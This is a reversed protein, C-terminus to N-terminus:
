NSGDRDVISRVKHEFRFLPGKSKNEPDIIDLLPFMCQNIAEELNYAQRKFRSTVFIGGLGQAKKFCSPMDRVYLSIHPGSNAIIKGSADIELKTHDVARQETAHCFSLTQFPSGVIKIECANTQPLSPADFVYRYFRCIDTLDTNQSVYFTLDPILIPLSKLGPQCGRPDEANSDVLLRFHSGWPDTVLLEDERESWTFASTKLLTSHASILKNRVSELDEVSEEKRPDIAFGLTEFYFQKLLDHRGKENNINLHDSM